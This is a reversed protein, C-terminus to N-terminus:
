HADARILVAVTATCTNAKIFVTCLELKYPVKATCTHTTSRGVNTLIRVM